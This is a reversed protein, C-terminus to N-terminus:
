LRWASYIDFQVYSAGRAGTLPMSNSSSLCSTCKTVEVECVLSAVKKGVRNVATDGDQATSPGDVAPASDHWLELPRITNFIDIGFLGGPTWHNFLALAYEKVEMSASGVLESPHKIRARPDHPTLQLPITPESISPVELPSAGARSTPQMKSHTGTVLLKGTTADYFQSVILLTLRCM